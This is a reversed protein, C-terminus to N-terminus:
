ECHAIETTVHTSAVVAQCLWLEDLLTHGGGGAVAEVHGGVVRFQVPAAVLVLIRVLPEALLVDEVLACCAVRTQAVVLGCVTWLGEGAVFATGRRGLASVGDVHRVVELGTAWEEEGVQGGAVGEVVVAGELVLESAQALGRKRHTGGAVLVPEPQRTVHAVPRAAVHVQEVLLGFTVELAEALVVAWERTGVVLGVSGVVGAVDLRLYLYLVLAAGAFSESMSPDGVPHVQHADSHGVVVDVDAHRGAAVGHQILTLLAGRKLKDRRRM